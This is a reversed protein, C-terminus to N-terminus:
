NPNEKREEVWGSLTETNMEASIELDRSMIKEVVSSYIEAMEPFHVSLRGKGKECHERVQEFFIPDAHPVEAPEPALPNQIVERERNFFYNVMEFFDMDDMRFVHRL